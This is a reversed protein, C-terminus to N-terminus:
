RCCFVHFPRCVALFREFSMVALLAVSLLKNINEVAWFIKCAIFGFQWTGRIFYGMPMPAMCLVFIDVISLCLVWSITHQFVSNVPSWSKYLIRVVSFIVWLNGAIGITFVLFFFTTTLSAESVFAWDTM